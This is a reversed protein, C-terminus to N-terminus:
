LEIDLTITGNVCAVANIKGEPIEIRINGDKAKYSKVVSNYPKLKSLVVDGVIKRVGGFFSFGLAKANTIDIQMAGDVASIELNLSVSGVPLKYNISINNGLNVANNILDIILTINLKLENNALKMFSVIDQKDASIEM